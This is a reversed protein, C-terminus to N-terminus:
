FGNLGRYKGISGPARSVPSNATFELSNVSNRTDLLCSNVYFAVNICFTPLPSNPLFGSFEPIETESGSVRSGGM